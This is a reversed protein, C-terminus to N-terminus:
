EGSFFSGALSDDQAGVGACMMIGMWIITWDM